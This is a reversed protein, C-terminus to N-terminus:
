AAATNDILLLDYAATYRGNNSRTIVRVDIDSKEPIVMPFSFEYTYQGGTGSVEFSHGVRFTDQGYYRVYMDGTADAGAQATCTGKYLYGTKGAPVTYVTMQTQSKGTRIIAVDTSGRQITIDGINSTGGDVLHASYIRRFSKTSVNNTQSALTITENIPLFNDDLGYVTVQKNVDSASAADINIVGATDWTSWPYITDNKDWITGTTSTSMSPVAGFIHVSSTKLVLGRSVLLSIDDSTPYYKSM